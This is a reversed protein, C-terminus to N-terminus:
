ANTQALLSRTYDLCNEIEHTKLELTITRNYKIERLGKFINNFDIIGKGPPLHLDDLYSEGGRNDHIHIHRIREPYIKMFEHSLNKETLLQAHGLDLTLFLLPLEKFPESMHSTNESMNELCITIGRDEARRIIERLLEIKFSIVEKKVFRPDLWLHITLLSMDLKVMLILIEDIQPLYIRGLNNIDNPDGERPGHCLYYLGTRDKLDKYIEVQNSFERPNSVPIEAFQLGLNHLYRVDQPTRATGGLDIDDSYSM